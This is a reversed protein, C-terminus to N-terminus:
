PERKRFITTQLIGFDYRRFVHDRMLRFCAAYRERHSDDLLLHGGGKLKPLAQRFCEERSRGDIAIIDFHEDPFRAIAAPYGALGEGKRECLTLAADHRGRRDLAERTSRYWDPDHEVTALEGVREALWLTSAGSGWEFARSEKGVIGALARVAGPTYYPHDPHLRRYLRWYFLSTFARRLHFELRGCSREGRLRRGDRSGGYTKVAQEVTM